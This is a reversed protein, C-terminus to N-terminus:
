TRMGRKIAAIENGLVKQRREMVQLMTKGRLALQELVWDACDQAAQCQQVVAANLSADYDFGPSILAKFQDWLLQECVAYYRQRAQVRSEKPIETQRLVQYLARGLREAQHIYGSLFRLAIENGLLKRPIQLDHRATSLYSAQHPQVGYLVLSLPRQSHDLTEYQAVIQPARTGKTDIFDTLNLWLTKHDSPKWNFRGKANYRYTPPHTPCSLAHWVAM